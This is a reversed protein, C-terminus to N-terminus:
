SACSFFPIMCICYTDNAHNMGVGVHIGGHTLKGQTEKAMAADHALAEKEFQLIYARPDHMLENDRLTAKRINKLKGRHAAALASAAPMYDMGKGLLLDGTKLTPNASIADRIDNVVKSPIKSANHIPHNHLNADPIDSTRIIGTMWHRKDDPCEPWLYTFEVACEESHILKEDPHNPCKTSERISLVHTCGDSYRECLKVGGCPIIRYWLQENTGNVNMTVKRPNRARGKHLQVDTFLFHENKSDYKALKTIDECFGMRQPYPATFVGPFHYDDENNIAYWKERSEM